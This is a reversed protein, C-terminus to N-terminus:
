CKMEIIVLQTTETKASILKIIAGISTPTLIGGSTTYVLTYASYVVQAIYLTVDDSYYM